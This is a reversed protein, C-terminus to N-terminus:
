FRNTQCLVHGVPWVLRGSKVSSVGGLDFIVGLPPCFGYAFLYTVSEPLLKYFAEKYQPETAKLFLTTHMYFICAIVKKREILDHLESARKLWTGPKVGKDLRPTILKYGMSKLKTYVGEHGFGGYIAILDDRKNKEM